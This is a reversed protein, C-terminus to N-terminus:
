RKRRLAFGMLGLGILATSSPEPVAVIQLGGITGFAANTPDVIVTIFDSTSGVTVTQQVFNLGEAFALNDDTIAGISSVTLDALNSTDGVGIGVDYTRDLASPERVIAFVNYEGAALGSVRVGLNDNGRSFIWDQGLTTDLIGPVAGTGGGNGDGGSFFGGDVPANSSDGLQVTVGTAATGDGFVLSGGGLINTINGAANVGNYFTDDIGAPANTANDTGDFLPGNGFDFQLTAGSAISSTALVASAALLKTIKNKM